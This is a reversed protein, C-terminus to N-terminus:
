FTIRGETTAYRDPIVGNLNDTLYSVIVSRVLDGTCRDVSASGLLGSCGRELMLYDSSVLTYSRDPEIPRYQGTTRDLVMVNSVRRPSGDDLGSFLGDSDTLIQATVSCDIAYHIGSAQIFSGNELPCTVAGFELADALQRGTISGVCCVNGFPEVASIDNVSISGAPIAERIGGGNVIAIDTGYTERLADTVLNGVSTERYRVLWKGDADRCPLAFVSHCCVTRGDALIREKESEVLAAVATDRAAYGDTPVLRSHLRGRADITLVGINQFGTGTSALLVPQGKVNRVTSDPIVHHTHGDLVADIGYTGNILQVSTVAGDHSEEGLHSLAIVYDAGDARAMDIYKQANGLFDRESFGYIRVGTGDRFTSYSVDGVTGPTTFGIFAVRVNGYTAMGYPAFVPGISDPGYFNCCVATADLSDLLEFLRPMRYDFEHNGLTVFDYGVANMIRVISAGRTSEGVVDGQVFDGSSVLAVYPTGSELETRMAAIGAYGDVRCHVDNEYVIKIVADDGRSCSYATPVLLLFAAAACIYSARRTEGHLIRRITM